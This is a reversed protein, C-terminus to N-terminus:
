LITLHHRARFALSETKCSKYGELYFANNMVHLEFMFYADKYNNLINVFLSLMYVVKRTKHFSHHLLGSLRDM